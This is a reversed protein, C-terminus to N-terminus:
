PMGNVAVDKSVQWDHLNDTGLLIRISYGQCIHCKDCLSYALYLDNKLSHLFIAASQKSAVNGM